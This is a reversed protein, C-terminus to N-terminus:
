RGGQPDFVLRSPMGTVTRFAHSRPVSSTAEFVAIAEEKSVGGFFESQATATLSAAGKAIAQQRKETIEQKTRRGM